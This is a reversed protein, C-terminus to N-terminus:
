QYFIKDSSLLICWICANFPLLQLIYLEIQSTEHTLSYICTLLLTNSLMLVLCLQRLRQVELAPVILILKSNFDELVASTRNFINSKYVSIIYHYM